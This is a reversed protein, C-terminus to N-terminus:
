TPLQERDINEWDTATRRFWKEMETMGCRMQKRGVDRGDGYINRNDKM